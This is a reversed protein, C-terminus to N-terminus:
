SWPGTDSDKFISSQTNAVTLSPLHPGLFGDQAIIHTDRMRAQAGGFSMSMHQASPAHERKRAHGQSHDFTFVLVDHHPHLVKLCHAIDKFQLSM